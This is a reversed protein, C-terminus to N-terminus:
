LKTDKESYRFKVIKQFTLQNELNGMAMIELDLYTKSAPTATSEFTKPKSFKRDLKQSINKLKYVLQCLTQAYM